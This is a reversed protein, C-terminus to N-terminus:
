RSGATLPWEHRVHYNGLVSEVLAFDRVPWSPGAYGELAALLRRDQHYSVTLHPRFPRPDIAFGAGDLAVRVSERLAGLATLDGALGAWAVPGFRGGGALRLAFAATAPGAPALAEAVLPMAGDDVEGLFALTVHWKSPRTFRGEAPLTRRLDERAASPPFVAM